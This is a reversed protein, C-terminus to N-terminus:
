QAASTRDPHGGIQLGFHLAIDPSADVRLDESIAFQFRWGGPSRYEAGITLVTAPGLFRLETDDFFGDHADVQLRLDLSLLAGWTAGLSGFAVWAEPELPLPAASAPFVVGVRGDFQLRHSLSGGGELWAGVDWGGNGTLQSREGTPLEVGLWAHLTAGPTQNLLYGAEIASDGLATHSESELVTGAASTYRFTFAGDALNPRSGESLGFADHWGDIAGDLVGGSDHFVPVTFRMQLRETAQWAALWRLELSEGDVYLSEGSRTEVNATNSLSLQLQHILRGDSPPDTVPLPLYQGRILPNQDRIAFAEAGATGSVLALLLTGVVARPPSDRCKV